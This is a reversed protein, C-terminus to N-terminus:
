KGTATEMRNIAYGTLDKHILLSLQYHLFLCKTNDTHLSILKM